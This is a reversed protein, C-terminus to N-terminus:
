ILLTTKYIDVVMHSHCSIYGVASSLSAGNLDCALFLFERVITISYKSKQKSPSLTESIELLINVSYCLISCVSQTGHFVLM